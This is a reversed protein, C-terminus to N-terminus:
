KNCIETISNQMFPTQTKEFDFWQIGDKNHFRHWAFEQDPMFSKFKGKSDLAIVGLLRSKQADCDFYQVQIMNLEKSITKLYSNNNTKDIKYYRTQELTNQEDLFHWTEDNSFSKSTLLLMALLCFTKKM